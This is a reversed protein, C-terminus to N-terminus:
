GAVPNLIKFFFGHFLRPNRYVVEFFIKNIFDAAGDFFRIDAPVLQVPDDAPQIEALVPVLEFDGFILPQVAFVIIHKHIFGQFDIRGCKRTGHLMLHIHKGHIM